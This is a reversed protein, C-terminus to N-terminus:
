SNRIRSLLSSVAKELNGSLDAIEDASRNLSGAVEGTQAAAMQVQGIVRAVEQSADSVESINRTIEAIVANQEEVAGAASASLGDIDSVGDIIEQMATVSAQTASQIQSIRKEIEETKQATESALKKVEDAVVAFGKGAEGARAAEITANLALLNTQEAIDKIAYVVEGINGVLVNLENVQKSTRSASDAAKSAKSAVDSVQHSIEHASATMEETASAVTNVNASTEESAGAVSTSADATERATAQMIRSAEQLKEASVALGKIMGGVQEDFTDALDRMAQKKEEVARVENAMAEEQLRITELGNEKFVQVSAAMQGIEDHRETGPISVKFNSQALESMAESMQTIPRSLKRSIFISALVVFFLGVLASLFVFLKMKNIPEMIEAMDIEALIVWNTGLFNFASYSSMVPIGRYDTIVQYHDVDQKDSKLAALAPEIAQATVKTNLISSKDGEKLFRSDSRMLLDTGVLYTEGSEGLGTSLQMLANIRSIPMQFVVVGALTEDDNLIPQAIFSAPVDYSPKYPRFDAFVQFDKQPNDRAARYVVGLDTDKWEGSVLNTAYDLEKFVTYVLNGKTDFLFIDYYSRQRLFHRFWPHYQRHYADYTTGESPGDYNEKKGIPEQNKGSAKDGNANIYVDQLRKTQNVALEDWASTYDYLAQRVYPSYAMSSLDEQISTLYAQLSAERSAEIASLKQSAQYLADDSAEKVAIGGAVVASLTAMCAMVLPLKTSIKMKSVNLM